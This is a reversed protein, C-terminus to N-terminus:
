NILHVQVIKLVFIIMLKMLIITILANQMAIQFLKCSSCNNDKENGPGFCNECSKFCNKYFGDEDLYYGEPNKDLCVGVSNSLISHTDAPCKQYCINNYEYDYEIEKCSNLCSNNIIDLKINKIFCIDSCDYRKNLRTLYNKMNTGNACIKLDNLLLNFTQSLNTNDKIELSYINLYILSTMNKFMYEVSTINKPSFHPIDLYKLKKCNNFMYSMDTVKTTDFITLNLYILSMCHSFMAYMKVINSTNFTSPFELSTLSYCHFFMWSTSTALTTDFSSLDISELKECHCFIYEM